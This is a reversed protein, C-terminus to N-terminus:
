EVEEDTIRKGGISFGTYDGSVYKKLTEADPKMGILLGTKKTKIGLSKAIETTLPFAFVVDGVQDGAHMDKAVRSHQMFDASAKLM